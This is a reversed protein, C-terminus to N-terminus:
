FELFMFNDLHDQVIKNQSGGKYFRKDGSTVYTNISNWCQKFTTVNKAKLQRIYTMSLTNGAKLGCTEMVKVSKRAGKETAHKSVTLLMLNTTDEAKSAETSKNFEESAAEWGAQMSDTAKCGSFLVVSLAVLLFKSFNM